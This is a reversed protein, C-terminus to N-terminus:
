LAFCLVTSLTSYCVNCFLTPSRGYPRYCLESLEGINRTQCYIYAIFRQAFQKKKSIWLKINAISFDKFSRYKENFIRFPKGIRNSCYCLLLLLLLKTNNTNKEIIALFRDPAKHLLARLVQGVQGIVM